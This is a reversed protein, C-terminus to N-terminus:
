TLMINFNRERLPFNANDVLLIDTDSIGSRLDNIIVKASSQFRARLTDWQWEQAILGLAQTFKEYDNQGMATAVTKLQSKARIAKVQLLELRKDASADFNDVLIANAKNSAEWATIVYGVLKTYVGVMRKREFIPEFLSGQLTKHFSAETEFVVTAEANKLEELVSHLLHIHTATNLKDSSLANIDDSLMELNVLARQLSAM